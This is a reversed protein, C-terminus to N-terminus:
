LLSSNKGPLGRWGLRINAPLALAYKLHEVRPYAGTWKPCKYLKMVNVGPLKLNCVQYSHLALGESVWDPQDEYKVDLDSSPKEPPPNYRRKRDDGEEEGKKKKKKKMRNGDAGCVYRLDEYYQIFEQLFLTCLVKIQAM